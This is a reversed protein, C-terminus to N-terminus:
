TGTSATVQDPTRGYSMVPVHMALVNGLNFRTQTAQLAILATLLAGASALLMFSAAIQTVAFM